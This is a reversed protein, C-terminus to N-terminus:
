YYAARRPTFTEDDYRDSPLRIFGGNRFRMVAMITTDVHDDHPMAPFGCVEDVVEEAWRRGAPYWVMGSAFIDAVSNLRATKDGSGRHPTYEQVPIGASRLEQYLATGASKKEVVFWDPKWEQLEQYARRKLEPFEMREKIANLLIINNQPLGNEDDCEFVGWTTLSTYDARNNKEAAADLSMIIYDCPPPSEDEWKQWWERKIIAAEASTPQQMYQANWQFPPMSAKTRLLSELSWQEPWLSKKTITIEGTEPDEKESELIAPFEVVEWQDSDPNRVMDQVVRGTLDNQAWRTMVLAVCGGPMLRTRAGYAYWDYAKDFVEFNGNLVDQENHPDDICNHTMLGDVYFTNSDATQFNAFETSSEYNTAVEKVRRVGVLLGFVRSAFFAEACGMVIGANSGYSKRCLSILRVAARKLWGFEETSRPAAGLEDESHVSSSRLDNRLSAKKSAIRETAEDGRGMREPVSNERVGDSERQKQPKAGAYCRGDMPLEGPHLGRGFQDSGTQSQLVSAGGHGLLLERVKGVQRLVQDWTRWVLPLKGRESQQMEAADHGLHQLGARLKAWAQSTQENFLVWFLRVYSWLSITDIINRTTLSEADLWGSDFTWVPHNPSLVTGDVRVSNEWKSAFVKEVREFGAFGWLHEGVKVSGAPIVGRERSIVTADVRVCMLDAGRGALAGGVGVAFYEGGKNTNWRGASKSDAALTVEPFVSKYADSDVLNRVKRGFDVALDATHSIMMIKKDPFNGIFWAPFYISTLQSKGFRPAINVAVRDKRGFAMDELLSALHKHHAGIKYNKDVHKVFELLSNRRKEARRRETLVTIIEMVETQKHKPLKHLNQLITRVEAPTLNMPSTM